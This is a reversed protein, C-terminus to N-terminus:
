LRGCMAPFSGTKIWFKTKDWDITHSTTSFHEKVASLKHSAAQSKHEKLREGLQYGTHWIYQILLFKGLTKIKASKCLNCWFCLFLFACFINGEDIFLFNACGICVFYLRAVLTCCLQRIQFIQWHMQPLWFPSRLM